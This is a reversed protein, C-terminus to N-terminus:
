ALKDPMLKGSVTQTAISSSSVKIIRQKVATRRFERHVDQIKM